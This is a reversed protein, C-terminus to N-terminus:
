RTSFSDEAVPREDDLCATARVYRTGSPSDATERPNELLVMLCTAIEAIPQLTNEASNALRPTESLSM